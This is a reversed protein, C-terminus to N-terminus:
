CKKHCFNRKLTKEGNNKRLNEELGRQTGERGEATGPERTKLSAGRPQRPPNETQAGERGSRPRGGGKQIQKLGSRKKGTSRDGGVYNKEGKEKRVATTAQTRSKQVGGSTPTKGGKERSTKKDRKRM